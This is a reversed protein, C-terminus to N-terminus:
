KLGREKLVVELDSKDYKSNNFMRHVFYLPFLIFVGFGNRFLSYLMIGILVGILVANMIAASKMKKSEDLLEQDSLESLEKQNM